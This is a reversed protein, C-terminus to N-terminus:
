FAYKGLQQTLVSSAFMNWVYVVMDVFHVFCVIWVYAVM